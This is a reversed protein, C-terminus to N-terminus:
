TRPGDLWICIYLPHIRRQSEQRTWGKGLGRAHLGGVPAELTIEIKERFHDAWKGVDLAKALAQPESIAVRTTETGAEVAGAVEVGTSWRVIGHEVWQYLRCTGLV